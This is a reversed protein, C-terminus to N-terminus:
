SRRPVAAIVAARELGDDLALLGADEGAANKDPQSILRRVAARLSPTVADIWAEIADLREDTTPM